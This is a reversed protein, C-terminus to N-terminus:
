IHPDANHDLLLSVMEPRNKNVAVGLATFGPGTSQNIKAKGDKLLIQAINLGVNTENIVVCQQLATSGNEACVDPDAGHLALFRCLEPKLAEVAFRLATYHFSDVEKSPDADYSILIEAVDKSRADDLVGTQSCLHLATRRYSDVANVDGCNDLLLRLAKLKGTYSAGHVATLSERGWKAAGPKQQGSQVLM